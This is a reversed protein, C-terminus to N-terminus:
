LSDWSPTLRTQLGVDRQTAASMNMMVVPLAEPWKLSDRGSYNNCSAEEALLSTCRLLSGAHKDTGRNIFRLRMEGM